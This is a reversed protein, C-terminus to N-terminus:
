KVKWAKVTKKNLRSYRILISFYVFSIGEVLYSGSVLFRVFVVCFWFLLFLRVNWDKNIKYSRLMLYIIALSLAVGLIIGYDIIFELFINHVYIVDLYIRDAFLGMPAGSKEEILRFAHDYIDNRTSSDWFANTQLKSLAYSGVSEGYRGLVGLVSSLNAIIVMILVAAIFLLLLKEFSLKGKRLVVTVIPFLVSILLPTRAGYFTIVIVGVVYLVLNLWKKGNYTAYFSTLVFPLLAYSFEMYNDQEANQYGGLFVMYAAVAIAIYRFLALRSFVVNTDNIEPILFVAIPIYYIFVLTVDISTYYQQCAAPGILYCLGFFALSLFYVALRKNTIFYRSIVGYYMYAFLAGYIVYAIYPNDRGYLLHFLQLIITKLLTLGLLNGIFIDNGQRNLLIKTTTM